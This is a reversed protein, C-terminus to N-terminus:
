LVGLRSLCISIEQEDNKLRALDLSDFIQSLESESKLGIDRYSVYHPKEVDIFIRNEPVSAKKAIHLMSLRVASPNCLGVIIATM